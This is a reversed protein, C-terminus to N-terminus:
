FTDGIEQTCIIFKYNTHLIILGARMWTHESPHARWTTFRTQGRAVALKLVTAVIPTRSFASELVFDFFAGFASTFDICDLVFLLTPAETKHTVTRFWTNDLFKDHQQSVM